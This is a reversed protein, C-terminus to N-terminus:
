NVMLKVNSATITVDTATPNRIKIFTPPCQLEKSFVNLTGGSSDYAITQPFLTDFAMLTGGSSASCMLVLGDASSSVGSIRVKGYGTADIELSGIGNAAIIMGVNTQTELFENNQASVKLIGGADVQLNKYGSTGEVQGHVAVSPLATPTHPGSAALEVVDVLLRDGSCELPQLTGDNKRGYILVQQLGDGVAKVDQGTTIKESMATVSGDLAFGTIADPVGSQIAVKLNGADLAAPLKTDISSLNANVAKSEASMGSVAGDFYYTEATVLAATASLSVVEIKFFSEACSVVHTLKQNEILPLSETLTLESVSPGGFLDLRATQDCVVVVSASGYNPVPEAIGQQVGNAAITQAIFTNGSSQISM